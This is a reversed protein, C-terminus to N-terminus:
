SALYVLHTSSLFVSTFLGRKVSLPYTLLYLGLKYVLHFFIESYTEGFITLFTFSSLSSNPLVELILSALIM